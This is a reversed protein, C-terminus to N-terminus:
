RARSVQRRSRRREWLVVGILVLLALGVVDPRLGPAPAAPGPSTPLDGPPALSSSWGPLATAGYGATSAGGLRNGVSVSACGPPAGFDECWRAADAGLNDHVRITGHLYGQGGDLRLLYGHRGGTVLNRYVDISGATPEAITLPQAADALTNFRIVLNAAGFDGLRAAVDPGGWGVKLNETPSNSLVNGEILGNTADLGPNVYLNAALTDHIRSGRIIWDHPAGETPSGAILLGARSQSGYVDLHDLIWGTGGEVKVMHDDFTGSGWTFALDRITWYDPADFRILGVITAQEGPYSAVTIRATPSGKPIPSDFDGPYRGGRLYLTDGARLGTLGRALTQWPADLTGANTDSGDPSVYRVVGSASIAPDSQVARLGLGAVVCLLVIGLGRTPRSTM